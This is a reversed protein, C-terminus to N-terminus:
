DFLHQRVDIDNLRGFEKLLERSRDDRVPPLAIQVDLVLDGADAPGGHAPTVGLGPLRLQQGSTTGPPVRLKVPEGLTPVTIRAGLAAEHVALPLTLHLDRGVRRFFPHPAVEVVAYLDGAPGRRAGAHGRGPIAIRAGSEVGAPIPVTVVESRAQVGAGGCIRCPQASLRGTGECLECSKTFVMHGRAWRRAGEGSCARCVVPARAVRGDGACGPCREQRVVSVPVDGGRAAEKFSLGVTVELDAGRSPATAERAADQFVDAFLEAFTGASPGEAPSSFDFGDFSMTASISVPGTVDAGRDYDRRRDLDALVDYAQQVQRFMEEAVRDGPNIGPHYRRALRRYAREIEDVSASRRVGLLSYFDMVWDIALRCKTIPCHCVWRCDAISIPLRGNGIEM